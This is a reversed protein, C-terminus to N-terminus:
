VKVTKYPWMFQGGDMVVVDKFGAHKLILAAEYGRLSIKCYAVVPKNKDLTDLSTRLKGLPINISGEIKAQKVEDPSRVDLFQFDVGDDFMKKVEDPMIGTMHGDLKNRLVNAATLINDVAPAFPPAYTLDLQAVQDVTMGCNIAVAAVDMRKDAVGEGVAQAGLLKRTKKDAILKIAIPKATPMFHAKDPAPAYATMVDYGADKAEKEGLGTRALTFDFVKCVTSGLVGPFTDDIGCISNAAVRGEKNATSGMPVYCPKGTVINVKEACDGVAFIDPDSTRMHEDIKIAGTTGIELGCGTALEVSPRVGISLIVMEANYTGNSTSVSEVVGDGNFGTVGYGTVVKVGNAELYREVLGAMEPDLMPLIQPLLEIITVRCGMDVLAETVEIGILGGGVIVVDRASLESLQERISEADEVGKLSFINGLEIGPLRPKINNAGTALVLKDYDIYGETGDETVYKARHNERDVETVTTRNHVEVNKVNQFFVSDRIAGVPTAMLEKQESVVGSIYYPLGCGAYSLFEGKEFITVDADPDMRIIRSAAKPGAAVGGVIVVKM